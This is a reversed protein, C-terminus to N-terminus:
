RPWREVTLGPDLRTQCTTQCAATAAAAQATADATKQTSDRICQCPQLVPVLLTTFSSAKFHHLHHHQPLNHRLSSKIIRHTDTKSFNIAPLCFLPSTRLPILPLWLMSLYIRKTSPTLCQLVHQSSSRTIRVFPVIPKNQKNMYVLHLINNLPSFLIQRRLPYYSHM